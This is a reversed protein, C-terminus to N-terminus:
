HYRLMVRADTSKPWETILLKQLACGHPNRYSGTISAIRQPFPFRLLLVFRQGWILATQTILFSEDHDSSPTVCKYCKILRIEASNASSEIKPRPSLSFSHFLSLSWPCWHNGGVVTWQVVYVIQIHSKCMALFQQLNKMMLQQAHFIMSFIVSQSCVVRKLRGATRIAISLTHTHENPMACDSIPLAKDM